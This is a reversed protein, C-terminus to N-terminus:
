LERAKRIRNGADTLIGGYAGISRWAHDDSFLFLINPREPTAAPVVSVSAFLILALIARRLGSWQINKPLMRPSLPTIPSVSLKSRFPLPSEEVM